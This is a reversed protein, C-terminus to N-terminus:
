KINLKLRNIQTEEKNRVPYKKIWNYLTTKPIKYESMIQEKTKEKYELSELIFDIVEKTYINKRFQPLQSEKEKISASYNVRAPPAYLILHQSYVRFFDYELLKCWKLLADTDLQEQLFMQDIQESTCKFFRCIRETEIGTELVRQKILSGINIKKLNINM